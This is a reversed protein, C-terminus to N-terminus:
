KRLQTWLGQIGSVISPGHNLLFGGVTALSVWPMSFNEDSQSKFLAMSFDSAKEYLVPANRSLGNNVGAGILAAIKPLNSDNIPQYNESSAQRGLERVMTPFSTSVGNPTFRITQEISNFKSLKTGNENEMAQTLDIVGNNHVLGGILPLAMTALKGIIPLFALNEEGSGDSSCPPTLSLTQCLAMGDGSVPVTYIELARNVPEPNLFTFSLNGTEPQCVVNGTVQIPQADEDDLPLSVLLTTVSSIQNKSRDLFEPGLQARQIEQNM